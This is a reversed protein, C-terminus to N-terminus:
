YQFHHRPMIMTIKMKRKRVEVMLLVWTAENVEIVKAYDPKNEEMLM